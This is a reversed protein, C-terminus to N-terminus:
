KAERRKVERPEPPNGALSQHTRVKNTSAIYETLIRGPERERAAKGQSGKMSCSWSTWHNAGFVTASTKPISLLIM